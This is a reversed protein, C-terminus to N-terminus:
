GHGNLFWRITGEERCIEMGVLNVYGAKYKEDFIKTGNGGDNHRSASESLYYSWGSDIDSFCIELDTILGSVGIKCSDKKLV